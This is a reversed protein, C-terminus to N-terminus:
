VVPAGQEWARGKGAQGMETMVKGQRDATPGRSLGLHMYDVAKEGLERVAELKM